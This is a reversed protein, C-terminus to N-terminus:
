TSHGNKAYIYIYILLNDVRLTVKKKQLTITKYTHPNLTALRHRTNVIQQSVVM